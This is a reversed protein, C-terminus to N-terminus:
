SACVSCKMKETNAIKGTVLGERFDDTEALENATALEFALQQHGDNEVGIVQRDQLPLLLRCTFVQERAETSEGWVINRGRNNAKM